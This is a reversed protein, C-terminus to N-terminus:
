LKCNESVSYNYQLTIFKCTYVLVLVYLNIKLATYTGYPQRKATFSGFYSGRPPV